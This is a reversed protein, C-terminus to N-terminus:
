AALVVVCNVFSLFVKLCLNLMVKSLAKKDTEELAKKETEKRQPPFHPNESILSVISYDSNPSHFSTPPPITQSQPLVTLPAPPPLITLPAPPPVPTPQVFPVPQPNPSIDCTGIFFQQDYQSQDFPASPVIQSGFPNQSVPPVPQPAQMPVYTTRLQMTHQVAVQSSHTTENLKKHIEELFSHKEEKSEVDLRRVTDKPRKREPSFSRKRPSVSRRYRRVLWKERDSLDSSPSGSRDKEKTGRKPKFKRERSFKREGSLRKERSSFFRDYYPSRSRSRSRLRRRPPPSPRDRTRRKERSRSRSRSKLRVRFRFREFSRSRSRSRFKSKNIKSDSKPAYGGPSTIKFDGPKSRADITPKLSEQKSRIESLDVEMEMGPPVLGTEVVRLRENIIKVEKDKACKEKDRLIDRRTKEPDRREESRGIKERLDKFRASREYSNKNRFPRQELEKPFIIRAHKGSNFSQKKDETLCNDENLTEDEKTKPEAIEGEEQMDDDWTDVIDLGEMFDQNSFDDFFDPPIDEEEESGLAPPAPVDLTKNEDGGGSSTAAEGESSMKKLPEIATEKNNEDATMVVPQVLMFHLTNGNRCTFFYYMFVTYYQM